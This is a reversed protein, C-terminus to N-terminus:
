KERNIIKKYENFEKVIKDNSVFESTELIDCIQTFSPREFPNQNWCMEILNIWNYYKMQYIKKPFQPRDGKKDKADDFPNKETLLIFLIMGFAYVDLSFSDQNIKYNENFEPAVFGPSMFIPTPNM